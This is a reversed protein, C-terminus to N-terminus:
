DNLVDKLQLSSLRGELYPEFVVGPLPGLYDYIFLLQSALLFFLFVPPLDGLEGEDIRLVHLVYM